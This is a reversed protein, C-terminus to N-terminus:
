RSDKEVNLTVANVVDPREENLHAGHLVATSPSAWFIFVAAVPSSM